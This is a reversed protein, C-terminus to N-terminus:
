CDVVAYYKSLWDMGLIADFERLQIVILNIHMIIGDVIIPYNRIIINVNVVGETPMFVCVDYGLPKIIGNIRSM